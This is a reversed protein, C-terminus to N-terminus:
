AEKSRAARLKQIIGRGCDIMGVPRRTPQVPVRKPLARLDHISILVSSRVLHKPLDGSEMLREIHRKSCRLYEAAEVPTYWDHVIHKRVEELLEQLIQENM